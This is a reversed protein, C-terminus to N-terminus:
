CVFVDSVMSVLKNQLSISSSPPPAAPENKQNHVLQKEKLKIETLNFLNNENIQEEKEDSSDSGSM